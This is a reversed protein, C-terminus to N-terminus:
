CPPHARVSPSLMATTCGRRCDVDAGLEFGALTSWLKLTVPGNLDLASAGPNLIWHHYNLPDPDTQSGDSRLITLGPDLDGDPDPDGPTPPTAVLDFDDATAGSDGLFWGKPRSARTSPSRRRDDPDIVIAGDFATYTFSDSGTFGANPTYTFSGDPDLTVAGSGPGTDLVATLPDDDYDHDNALVGPAGVAIPADRDTM